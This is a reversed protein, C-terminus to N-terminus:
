VCGYAFFEPRIRVNPPIRNIFILGLLAIMKHVSKRAFESLPLVLRIAM